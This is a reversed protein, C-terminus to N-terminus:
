VDYRLFLTAHNKNTVKPVSTYYSLIELTKKKMKEFNQNEPNPLFAFFPRFHYFIRDTASWIEPVM